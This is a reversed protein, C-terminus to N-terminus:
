EDDDEGDLFVQDADLIEGLFTYLERLDARTVLVELGSSAKVTVLVAEDADTWDVDEDFVATAVTLTDDSSDTIVVKHERVISM